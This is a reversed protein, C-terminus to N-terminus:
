NRRKLLYYLGVGLLIYPVLPPIIALPLLLVTAAAGVIGIPIMVFVVLIISLFFALLKFPLALMFIGANFILGLV